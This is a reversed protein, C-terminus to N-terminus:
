KAAKAIEKKAEETKSNVLSALLSIGQMRIREMSAANIAQATRAM